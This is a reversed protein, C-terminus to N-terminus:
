ITERAQESWRGMTQLSPHPRQLKAEPNKNDPKFLFLFVVHHQIFM